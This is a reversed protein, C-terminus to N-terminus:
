GNSVTSRTQESMETEDPVKGFSSTGERIRISQCFFVGRSYLFRSSNQKGIMECHKLFLLHFRNIEQM